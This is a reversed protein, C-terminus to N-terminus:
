AGSASRRKVLELPRNKSGGSPTHTVRADRAGATIRGWAETIREAAEPALHAYRQTTAYSEHGLLHQVRYLDVGDMVLWSAATHRLTHPKAYEVAHDKPNVCAPNGKEDKGCTHLCTRARVLAPKWHVEWFTPYKLAGGGPGPFMLGDRPRGKALEALQFMVHEPVPVERYSKSTKLYPRIGRKTWNDVIAIHGRTWQVRDIRLAAIEGYRPGSYLGLEVMAHVTRKDRFEHLIADAEPQTFYRHAGHPVTPLDIGECPSHTIKRNLVAAKMMQAFLSYVKPVTPAGPGNRAMDKVWQQVHLPTPDALAWDGWHPEINRRWYGEYNYLTGPEVVMADLFERGWDGITARGAKPDRWTGAAIAVERDRAWREAMKKMPFTETDRKKKPIVWVTAQWKGSPLQRIYAM